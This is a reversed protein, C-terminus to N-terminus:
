DSAPALKEAVLGLVAGAIAYIIIADISWWLWIKGDVDFVGSLSLHYAATFAALLLGIRLGKNWGPGDFAPRVFCYIAGIVMGTVVGSLIWEPMLAGMDPPDANLEPRWFQPAAKYIEDLIGVHIIQGTALSCIFATVWFALGGLVIIKWNM